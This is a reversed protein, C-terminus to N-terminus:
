TALAKAARAATNELCYKLYQRHFKFDQYLTGDMDFLITTIGSTM